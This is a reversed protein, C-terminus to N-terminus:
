GGNLPGMVPVGTNRKLAVIFIPREEQPTLKVKDGNMGWIYLLVFGKNMIKPIDVKKSIYDSNNKIYGVYGVLFAGDYVETFYANLYKDGQVESVEQFPKRSYGMIPEQRVMARMLANAQNVLNQKNFQSPNKYTGALTKDLLTINNSCGQQANIIFTYSRNKCVTVISGSMEGSKFGFVVTKPTQPKANAHISNSFYLNVIKCPINISAIANPSVCAKVTGSGNSYVKEAYSTLATTFITAIVIYKAFKNMMNCNYM